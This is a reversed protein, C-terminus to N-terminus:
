KSFISKVIEVASLTGDEEGNLNSKVINAKDSVQSTEITGQNSSLKTEKFKAIARKGKIVELKEQSTEYNDLTLESFIAAVAEDSELEESAILEDELAFTKLEEAKEALVRDQEAKELAEVKEKFPQLVQVQAELSDKEKGLDTLSKGASAIEKEAKDLKDNLEAVQSDIETVPIFRLKVSQQSTISITDDSNVSYKFEVYDEDSERDWNYAIARYDYPYMQAIYYWKDESSNIAKRVKSYLDNDTLASLENQNEKTLKNGGENLNEIDDDISSMLMFDQSLADTLESDLVISAVELVGSKDYAPRVYEGLLAHGIFQGQDVVKIDEGNIEEQHSEFANLEWSTKLGKKSKSRKKM